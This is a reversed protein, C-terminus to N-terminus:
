SSSNEAIRTAIARAIAAIDILYDRVAKLFRNEFKASLVILKERIAEANDLAHQAREILVEATLDTLHIVYDVVDSAVAWDYHKVRYALSVFPTATSVAFVAGHLRHSVVLDATKILALLAEVTPTGAMRLQHTRSPKARQYIRDYYTKVAAVDRATSHMGVVLIYMDRELLHNALGIFAELEMEYTNTANGFYVGDSADGVVFVAYSVEELKLNLSIRLRSDVIGQVYSTVFSGADGLITGAAGFPLGLDSALQSFGHASFPGRVGGYQLSPFLEPWNDLQAPTPPLQDLRPLESLDVDTVNSGGALTHHEVLGDILERDASWTLENDDYGGGFLLRPFVYPGKVDAVQQVERLFPDVCLVSGGSLTVVGTPPLRHFPMLTLQLHLSRAVAMHLRECVRLLGTDGGNGEVGICTFSLPPTAVLREVLGDEPAAREAEVASAILEALVAPPFLTANLVDPLAPMRPNPTPTETSTHGISPFTTQVTSGPSWLLLIAWVAAVSLVLPALSVLRALQSPKESVKLERLPEEHPSAAKIAGGVASDANSSLMSGAHLMVGFCLATVGFAFVAPPVGPAATAFMVVVVSLSRGVVDAVSFFTASVMHLSLVSVFELTYLSAGAAFSFGIFDWVGSSMAIVSIAPWGPWWCALIVVLSVAGLVGSFLATWVVVSLISGELAYLQEYVVMRYAAMGASVLGILLYAPTRPAGSWSLTMVVGGGVVLAAGIVDTIALGVSSPQGGRRWCLSIYFLCLLPEMTWADKTLFTISNVAALVRLITCAVQVLGLRAIIKAPPLAFASAFFSPRWHSPAFSVLIMFAAVISGMFLQVAASAIAPTVFESATSPMTTNLATLAEEAASITFLDHGVRLGLWLSFTITSACIILLISSISDGSDRSAPRPNSPEGM